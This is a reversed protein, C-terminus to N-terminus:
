RGDEGNRMARLFADLGELSLAMEPRDIPERGAVLHAALEDGLPPTRDLLAFLQPHAARVAAVAAAVKRIQRRRRADYRDRCRPCFGLEDAAPAACRSTRCTALAMDSHAAILYLRPAAM